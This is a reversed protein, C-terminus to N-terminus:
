SPCEFDSCSFKSALEGGPLPEYSCYACQSPLDCEFSIVSKKLTCEGVNNIDCFWCQSGSHGISSAFADVVVGVGVVAAVVGMVLASSVQRSGKRFRRNRM